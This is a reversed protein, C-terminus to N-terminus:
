VGEFLTYVSTFGHMQTSTAGLHTPGIEGNCFFGCLGRSSPFAGSFAQTDVNPKQYLGQGRGCCAFMLGGRVTSKVQLNKFTLTRPYSKCLPM